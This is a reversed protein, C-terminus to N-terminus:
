ASTTNIGVRCSKLTGTFKRWYVIIGHCAYLNDIYLLMYVVELNLYLKKATAQGIVVTPIFTGLPQVQLAPKDPM